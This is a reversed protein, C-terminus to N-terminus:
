LGYGFAQIITRAKESKLYDILAVAAPNDNGRKLLVVDQRIPTHRDAPIKWVSGDIMKGDKIIQSLALFGLEANGSVVFQYAQSINEALVFKPQMTELVGMGKMVEVAAAGYPALKPNALALHKFDGTKLVEGQDDVRGPTASWLVLTGMAYTFRSGPVTDGESELKAPTQADAALFVEFPAGNKIQAYFKGTSGTSVMARHGTDKAFEAAIEQMPATFNAAVAVQVEAAQVTLSSIALVLGALLVIFRSKM